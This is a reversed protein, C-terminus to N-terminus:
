KCVIQSGIKKGSQRKRAHTFSGKRRLSRVPLQKTKHTAVDGPSLFIRCWCLSWRVEVFARLRILELYCLNPIVTRKPSAHWLMGELERRLAGRMLCLFLPGSRESERERGGQQRYKEIDREREGGAKHELKLASAGVVAAVKLQFYIWFDSRPLFCLCYGARLCSVQPSSARRAKGHTTSFTQSPVDLKTNHLGGKDVRTISPHPEKQGRRTWKARWLTGGEWLWVVIGVVIDSQPYTQNRVSRM